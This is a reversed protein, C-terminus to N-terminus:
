RKQALTDIRVIIDDLTLNGWEAPRALVIANLQDRTVEFGAKTLTLEPDAALAARFKPDSIARTIIAERIFPESMSEEEKQHRNLTGLRSRTASHVVSRGPSDVDRMRGHLALYPDKVLEALDAIIHALIEDHDTDKLRV